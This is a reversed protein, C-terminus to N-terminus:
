LSCFSYGFNSLLSSFSSIIELFQRGRRFLALEKVFLFLAARICKSGINDLYLRILSLTCCSLCHDHNLSYGFKPLLSIFSFIIELLEIGCMFLALEKVFLCLTSRNCKSRITDLYLRILSLTCCSSNHDDNWSLHHKGWSSCPEDNWVSSNVYYKTIGHPFYFAIM